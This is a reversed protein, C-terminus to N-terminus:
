EDSEHPTYRLELGIKNFFAIIADGIDVIEKAASALQETTVPVDIAKFKGGKTRLRVRQFQKSPKDTRWRSHVYDNRSGQAKILRTTLQTYERWIAQGEQSEHADRVHATVLDLKRNFDMNATLLAVSLPDHGMVKAVLRELLFDVMEWHAAILGLLRMHEDPYGMPSQYKTM